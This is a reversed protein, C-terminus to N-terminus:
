GVLPDGDVLAGIAADMAVNGGSAPITQDAATASPPVLAQIRVAWDDGTRCAIGTYREATVPAIQYQRCYDGSQNQFTMKLGLRFPNGDSGTAVIGQGSPVTELAKKLPGLAILSNREIQVLSGPRMPHSAAEGRLLWGVGMGFVIAVSATLATRRDWMDRF